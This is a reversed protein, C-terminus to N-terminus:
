ICAYSSDVKHIYGQSEICLYTTNDAAISFKCAGACAGGGATTPIGNSDFVIQPAVVNPTVSLLTITSGGLIVQSNSTTVTGCTTSNNAPIGFVSNGNDFVSNHCVGRHNLAKLQVLRLHALYQDGTAHASFQNVGILKPVVTVALIAVITIIVVLEIITFAHQKNM